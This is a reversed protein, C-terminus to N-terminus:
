VPPIPRPEADHAEGLYSDSEHRHQECWRSQEVFAVRTGDSGVFYLTGYVGPNPCRPPTFWHFWCQEAM